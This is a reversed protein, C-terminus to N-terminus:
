VPLGARYAMGRLQRDTPSDRRSRTLLEAIVDRIIADRLVKAPFLDEATRLAVVADDHRGRVRALAHGYRTWYGCRNVLFPHREPQVQQAISVARDPESAQLADTIRVLGADNPGFVYGLSDTEGTAGFRDALEEAADLPAAVDGPRGTLRAAAAHLATVQAVFGANDATTPPLTISDLVTQGLPFAGGSLLVDAMGFAAHALTAVEDRQQALRRALYVARRLLDTPAAAEILWWRTVHVHLYVGLELLEGHDRGTDLTTHLDRILSPLADAVAAAQCARRQQHIQAVRDRLVAVPVVLGGPKDIEISDLALRVAETTSDTHGNAPAPVPLRMLESPAIELAEALGVIQSLSDLAQKGNEIRSLTPASIGALGAIVEQSKDRDKRIQRLRKGITLAGEVDM